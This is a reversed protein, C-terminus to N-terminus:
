QVVRGCTIEREKQRDRVDKKYKTEQIDQCICLSVIWLLCLRYRGNSSSYKKYKQPACQCCGHLEEEQVAAALALHFCNVLFWRVSFAGPLGGKWGRKIKGKKKGKHTGIEVNELRPFLVRQVLCLCHLIAFVRPVSIM